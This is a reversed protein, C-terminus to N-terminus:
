SGKVLVSINTNAPVNTPVGLLTLSLLAVTIGSSVKANVILVKKDGSLTWSYTYNQTSDNIIPFVGTINTYLAPGNVSGDSTLYFTANGTNSFTPVTSVYDQTITPKNLIQSLGSSSNWDANIQGDPIVPKDSLSEYSGTIAVDALSPKNLIQTVGSISDWDVNAQPVQDLDIKFWRGSTGLYPTVIENDDGTATSTADWWYVSYAEVMPYNLGLISALTTSTDNGRRNKLEELNSLAIM